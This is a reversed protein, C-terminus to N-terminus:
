PTKTPFTLSTTLRESRRDLVSRHVRSRVPDRVDVARLTKGPFYEPHDEHQSPETHAAQFTDHATVHHM